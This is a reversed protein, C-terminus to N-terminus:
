NFVDNLDHSAQVKQYFNRVLNVMQNHYKLGDEIGESTARFQAYFKKLSEVREAYALRKNRQNLKVQGYQANVRELTDLIENQTKLNAQLPALFKNHKQIEKDFVSKLEQESSASVVHKIVDDDNLSQRLQAFLSARQQKMEDVKDLLKELKRIVELDSTTTDDCKPLLESPDNTTAMLQVKQQLEPYLQKHLTQTTKLAEEHTKKFRSLEEEFQRNPRRRLMDQVSELMKQIEESRDDLEELKTLVDDVINPNMGLEACIEILEDPTELTSAKLSRKDINLTSMMNALEEDQKSVQVNIERSLDDKKQSYISNVQVAEITVLGAFLDKFEPISATASFPAASVLLKTDVHPLTERTPIIAHYVNDNYRIAKDHKRTVLGELATYAARTANPDITDPVLKKCQEVLQSASKLRAIRTGIEKASDERSALGALFQTLASFYKHKFEVTARWAPFASTGSIIDRLPDTYLPTVALKTAIDYDNSIQAAIKAVNEPKMSARISHVLICEQAQAQLVHHYFTLLDHGMEKPKLGSRNDRLETVWWLANSFHLCAERTTTENTKSVKAGFENHIAAISYMINNIEFELGGENVGRGFADKWPFIAACEKFRNLIAMLQCYYKKLAKLSNVDRFSSETLSSLAINRLNSFEQLERSYKQPSTENFKNKIHEALENLYSANDKPTRPPWVISALQNQCLLKIEDLEESM